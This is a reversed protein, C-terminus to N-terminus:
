KSATKDQSSIIMNLDSITSKAASYVAFVASSSLLLSLALTCALIINLRRSKPDSLEFTAIRKQLGNVKDELESFVSFAHEDLTQKVSTKLDVLVAEKKQEISESLKSATKEAEEVANAITEISGATAQNIAEPLSKINDHLVGLDGILEILLADRATKPARIEDQM